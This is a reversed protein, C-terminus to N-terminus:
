QNIDTREKVFRPMILSGTKTKRQYKIEVLVPEIFYMLNSPITGRVPLNDNRIMKEKFYRLQENTFGSTKAVYEYGYDTKNALLMAGFTIKRSGTGETFGIGWFDETKLKKVKKWENSRGDSVISNIDKIVIGENCIEWAHQKEELTVYNKILEFNKFEVDLFLAQLLENRQRWTWGLEILDLIGFKLIDFVFYKPTYELEIWTEQKALATLFHDKGKNDIFTLEGCLIIDRPIKMADRVFEPHDKAYDSKFSRGPMSVEEGEKIIFAYTGDYKLQVITDPNEMYQFTGDNPRMVPLKIIEKPTEVVPVEFKPTGLMKTVKKTHTCERPKGEKKITWGRCDCSMTGDNYVKVVYPKRSPNSKSPFAFEQVTSKM